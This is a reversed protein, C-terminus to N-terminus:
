GIELTSGLDFTAADTHINAANVGAKVGLRVQALTGQSLLTGAVLFLAPLFRHM